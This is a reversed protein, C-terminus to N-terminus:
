LLPIRGKISIVEGQFVHGDKEFNFGKRLVYNKQLNEEKFQKYRHKLVM